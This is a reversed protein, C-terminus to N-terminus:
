PDEKMREEILSALTPFMLTRDLGQENMLELRSAPERFADPRSSRSASCSAAARGTPTATATTTRRRRRTPRRRRVDPEPHVRQDQRQRRDEDPRERGQRVRAASRYRDPLHRTLAEPPEYFHNDADFVPIGSPATM